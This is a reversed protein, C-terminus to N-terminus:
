LPRALTVVFSWPTTQGFVAFLGRTFYPLNQVPGPDFKGTMKESHWFGFEAAHAAKKGASNNSQPPESKPRNGVDSSRTKKNARWMQLSMFLKPYISPPVSQAVATKM